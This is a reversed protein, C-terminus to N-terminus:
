QLGQRGAASLTEQVVDAVLRVANLDIDNFIPVCLLRGELGDSVPVSTDAFRQFPHMRHLPRYYPRTQVQYRALRAALREVLEPTDVILPVDKWTGLAASDFARAMRVGDCDLLLEDYLAAASRRCALWGDVYPLSTLALAAPLEALRGNIGVTESRYDDDLGYRGILRLLSALEGDNCSLLGGEGATLVKTSSLSFVELDGFGGIRRGDLSAGFAAAADSVLLVGNEAALSEFSTMDCPNGHAHVPLIAATRTSVLPSVAEVTACLSLPHVDSFRPRLGARIVANVTSPFTYSPVIVEDRDPRLEKVAHMAMGLAADGSSAGVVHEVGLYDAAAAELRECQPGSNSTWRTAFIEAVRETFAELPPLSPMSVQIWAARGQEPQVAQPTDLGRFVAGAAHLAHWRAFPGVGSNPMSDHAAHYCLSSLGIVDTGGEFSAPTSPEGWRGTETRELGTSPNRVLVTGYVLDIRGDSLATVCDDLHGPLFEEGEGLPAIFPGSALSEAHDLASAMWHDAEELLRITPWRAGALEVYQLRADHFSGVVEESAGGDSPHGVVILEWEAYTQRLVSPIARTRLLTPRDPCATVVSVLPRTM